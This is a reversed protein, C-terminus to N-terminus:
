RRTTAADTRNKEQDFILAKEKKEREKEREGLQAARAERQQPNCCCCRALSFLFSDSFLRLSLPSLASESTLAKKTEEREVL